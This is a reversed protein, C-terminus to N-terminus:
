HHQKRRLHTFRGGGLRGLRAVIARLARGSEDTFTLM